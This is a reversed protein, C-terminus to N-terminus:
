KIQGVLHNRKADVIKARVFRGRLDEKSEVLVSKYASNRGIYQNKRRGRKTVLIDCEKGIWEKNKELAIKGVLESMKKSREKVIKSDLQKMNEAATGPRLGFKSVNVFDPRIEEILDMTEKFDKETEGPFGIIIDTWITINPFVEKFRKIIRKFEKVKYFRNMKRLVKDSGSQVPVHLFKYIKDSKYCEVLDDLISLVNNPNMMGIRVKFKGKIKDIESLLDVLTVGIDMGYCGCDQSTLWIEKCGSKLSLEIDRKIEELPYSRLAGRSKKVICYTCSGLCGQSIETIGIYPNFRVRPKLLKTERKYDLYEVIEGNLTKNVCEAVDLVNNPGLISAGPVIKRVLGYEGMPMCGAVIMKKNPYKDSLYQIRHIMKKETPDKVICTNVILVNALEPNEVIKCGAKELLGKMIESHSRNASCGYTEM